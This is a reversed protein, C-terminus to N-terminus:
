HMMDVIRSKLDVSALEEMKRNVDETSAESEKRRECGVAEKGM